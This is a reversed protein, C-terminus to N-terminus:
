QNWVTIHSFYNEELQVPDVCFLQLEKIKEKISMFEPSDAWHQFLFINSLSTEFMRKKSWYLIHRRFLKVTVPHVINNKAVRCKSFGLCQINTIKIPCFIYRQLWPTNIFFFCSCSPFLHFNYTLLKLTYKWVPCMWLLFNPLLSISQSLVLLLFSMPSFRRFMIIQCTLFPSSNM